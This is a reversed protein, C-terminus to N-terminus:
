VPTRLGMSTTGLQSAVASESALNLFATELIVTVMEHERPQLLSAITIGSGLMGAYYTLAAETTNGLANVNCPRRDLPMARVAATSPLSVAAPLHRHRARPKQRPKDTWIRRKTSNQKLHRQQLFAVAAAGDSATGSCCLLLLLGPVALALALCSPYNAVVTRGMLVGLGADCGVAAAAAAAAAAM